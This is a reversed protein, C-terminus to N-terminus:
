YDSGRVPTIERNLAPAYITTDSPSKMKSVLETQKPSVNVVKTGSKSKKKVKLNKGRM